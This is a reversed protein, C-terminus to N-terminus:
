QQIDKIGEVNNKYYNNFDLRFLINLYSHKSTSVSSEVINTLLLTLNKSFAADCKLISSKINNISNEPLEIVKMYTAFKLCVLMVQHSYTLLKSNTLLCDSLCENLFNTHLKLVDDVNSVAELKAEFNKWHVEIVEFTMYHLFNQVFNLMKQRLIFANTRLNRTSKSLLIKSPKDSLWLGCLQREVHKVYFIRRFLMQYNSLVKRSLVISVPWKVEYDFTFAELCTLSREKSDFKFDKEHKTEITLIKLMQRILDNGLLDVKIDDKFPDVNAVSMRLSLELLNTLRVILRNRDKVHAPVPKLMESEAVDMFQVICDGHELLFCQKLSKFRGFLHYNNILMQLLMHSANEHALELINHLRQPNEEYVMKELQKPYDINRGTQRVVNLYKGTSLLKDAIQELFIPTNDRKIAYRQEWYSIDDYSNKNIEKTINENEIIMFESYVDHIIGKYIWKELIDFYPLICKNMLHLCLQNEDEDGISNVIKEHLISIVKGGIVNSQNLRNILVVLINLTKMSPQLYYWLKQLSLHNTKNQHELQAILIFYNEMLSKIAAALAHNVMGYHYMSRSEVFRIITSYASCIPLIRLTLEKLSPDLSPDIKFERKSIDNEMVLPVIYKGSLGECSFLIDEIIASEQLLVHYDGIKQYQDQVEDNSVFDFSLFTRQLKTDFDELISNKRSKRSQKSLSSAM